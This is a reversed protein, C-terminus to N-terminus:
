SAFALRMDVVYAGDKLGRPLTAMILSNDTDSVGGTAIVNGVQDRVTLDSFQKELPESFWYQIRAPPYDLVARDDPIARLIYGHALVPSIGLLLLLLTILPALRILFPFRSIWPKLSSIPQFHVAHSM